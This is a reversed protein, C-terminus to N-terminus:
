FSFRSLTSASKLDAEAKDIQGLRGFVFARTRLAPQFGVHLQLAKNLDSLALDYKKQSAYLEGRGELNDPDFPAKELTRNFESMAEDTKGLGALASAHTAKVLLNDPTLSLARDSDELALQYKKDALYIIARRMLTNATHDPRSVLYDSLDKEAKEFEGLNAYTMARGVLVRKEDPQMKLAQNFDSLAKQHEGAMSYLWGRNWYVSFDSPNVALAKDYDKLANETQHLIGYARARSAYVDTCKPDLALAKDCDKVSNAGDGMDNYTWARARYNKANNPNLRIAENFDALAKQKEGAERYATGRMQYWSDDNPHSKIQMTCSRIFSQQEDSMSKVQPTLFAAASKDGFPLIHSELVAGSALIAAAVAASALVIRRRTTLQKRKKPEVFKGEQVLTLDRILESMSQYRKSPEKELCRAVISKLGSPIQHGQMPRVIPPPAENIHKFILKIPNNATFPPKGALAEYMVCGLSYIDARHDLHEGLCQEPSMYQPSGFIEGSQTLNSVEKDEPALVKSIGFDVLKVLDRNQESKSVLINSPKLDRHVVGKDHAHRVAEAVQLFLYIFQNADLYKERALIASLSEGDVYDMLLFPQGDQLVGHKYVAVLNAHTLQSASSAEQEFRKVAGPEKALEAHLIKLAYLTGLQRERVKYVAGMGGFGIMELMEYQDCFPNIHASPSLEPKVPAQSKSPSKGFIWSTLSGGKSKSNKPDPPGSALNCWDQLLQARLPSVV